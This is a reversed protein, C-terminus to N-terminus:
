LTPSKHYREWLENYYSTTMEFSRIAEAAMDVTLSSTIEQLASQPDDFQYMRCPFRGGIREQILSFQELPALYHVYVHPWLQHSDLTRLYDMYLTYKISCPPMCCGIDQWDQFAAQSRALGPTSFKVSSEIISYLEYKTYVWQCYLGTPITNSFLSQILRTSDATKQALLTHEKLTQPTNNM